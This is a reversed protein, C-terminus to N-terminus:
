AITAVVHVLATSIRAVRKSAVDDVLPFLADPLSEGLFVAALEAFRMEPSGGEVTLESSGERPSERARASCWVTWAALRAVFAAVIQALGAVHSTSTALVARVAHQLTRRRRHTPLSEGLVIHFRDKGLIGFVMDPFVEVLFPGLHIHAM